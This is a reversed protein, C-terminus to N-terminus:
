HGLRQSVFNDVKLLFPLGLRWLKRFYVLVQFPLCNVPRLRHCYLNIILTVNHTPERYLLAWDKPSLAASFYFSPSLDRAPFSIALFFMQFFFQITKHIQLRYINDFLTFSILHILTNTSEHMHLCVCVSIPM